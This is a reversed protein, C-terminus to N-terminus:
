KVIYEIYNTKKTTKNKHIKKYAKCIRKAKKLTNVYLGADDTLVYDDFWGTVINKYGGYWHTKCQACYDVIGNIETKKIRFKM